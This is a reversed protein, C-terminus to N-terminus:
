NQYVDVGYKERIQIYTHIPTSDWQSVAHVPYSLRAQELMDGTGKIIKNVQNMKEQWNAQSEM